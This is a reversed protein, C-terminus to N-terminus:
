VTKYQVRDTLIDHHPGAPEALVGPRHRKIGENQHVASVAARLSQKQMLANMQRLLTFKQDKRKIHPIAQLVPVIQEHVTITVFCIPIDTKLPLGIIALLKAIVQLFSFQKGKEWEM